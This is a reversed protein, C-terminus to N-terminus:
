RGRFVPFLHWRNARWAGSFLGRSKTTTTSSFSTTTSSSRPGSGAPCPGGLPCPAAIAFPNGPLTVADGPFGTKPWPKAVGEHAAANGVNADSHVITKKNGDADTVTHSHYGPPIVTVSATPHAIGVAPTNSTPVNSTYTWSGSAADQTWDAHLSAPSLLAAFLTAALLPFRNM